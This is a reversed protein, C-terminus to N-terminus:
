VHCIGERRLPETVEELPRGVGVRNIPWRLVEVSIATQSPRTVEQNVQKKETEKSSQQRETGMLVAKMHKKGEERSWM